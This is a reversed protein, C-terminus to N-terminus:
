RVATSRMLPWATPGPCRAAGGPAVAVGDGIEVGQDVGEDVQAQQLADAVALWFGGSEKLFEGTWIEGAYGTMESTVSNQPKRAYGTTVPGVRGFLM